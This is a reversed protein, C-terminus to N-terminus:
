ANVTVCAQFKPPILTTINKVKELYDKSSTFNEITGQRVMEYFTKADSDLANVFENRKEPSMSVFGSDAFTKLGDSFKQQVEPPLCDHAMMLVFDGSRLDKIGPIIFETLESMVEDTSATGKCSYLIAGGLSILTINRIATRRKM